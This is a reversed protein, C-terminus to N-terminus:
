EQYLQVLGFTFLGSKVCSCCWLGAVIKRKSLCPFFFSFFFPVTDTSMEKNRNKPNITMPRRKKQKSFFLQLNNYRIPVFSWDKKNVFGTIFYAVIKWAVTQVQILYEYKIKSLPSFSAVANILHSFRLPNMEVRKDGRQFSPQVNTPLNEFIPLIFGALSIGVRSLSLRWESYFVECRGYSVEILSMHQSVLISCVVASCYCM